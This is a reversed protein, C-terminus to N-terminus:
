LPLGREAAYQRIRDQEAQRRDRDAHDVDAGDADTPLPAGARLADRLMQRVAPTVQRGAKVEAALQRWGARPDRQQMAKAVNGLRLAIQRKEAPTM